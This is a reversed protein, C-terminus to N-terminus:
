VNQESVSEDSPSVMKQEKFSDTSREGDENEISRIYSARRLSYGVIVLVVGVAICFYFKWSDPIGLSPVVLLLLGIIFVISERSM